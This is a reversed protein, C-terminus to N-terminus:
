PEKKLLEKFEGLLEKKFHQLDETTPLNIEM